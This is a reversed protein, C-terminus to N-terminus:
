RSGNVLLQKLTKLHPREGAVILTSDAKFIYDPGPNIHKGDKDIAAIITTGTRKRIDSDGITKGVCSAGAEVKYWEITLDDLAVEITELAKPTYTMGGIIAAVQRAEEDDMSVMSISDDPDDYEFHYMERRGDDHIVVVLKDGGRTEMQYKRGIGPLDSERINM